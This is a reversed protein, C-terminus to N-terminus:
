GKDTVGQATNSENVSSPRYPLLPRGRANENKAPGGNNQLVVKVYQRRHIVFCSEQPATHHFARRAKGQSMWAQKSTGQPISSLIDRETM